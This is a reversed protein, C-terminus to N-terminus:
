PAGIFRKGSLARVSATTTAMIRTEILYRSATDSITLPDCRRGDLARFWGKFDAAWEDNPAHM